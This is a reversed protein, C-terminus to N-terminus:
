KKGMMETNPFCSITYLNVSHIYKDKLYITHAHNQSLNQPNPKQKMIKYYCNHLTVVWKRASCFFMPRQIIVTIESMMNM